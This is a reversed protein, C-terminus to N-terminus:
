LMIFCGIRMSSFYSLYDPIQIITHKRGMYPPSVNDYKNLAPLQIINILVIYKM